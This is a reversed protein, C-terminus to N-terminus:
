DLFHALYEQDFEEETLLERGKTLLSKNIVDTAFLVRNYIFGNNLNILKALTDTEENFEASKRIKGPTSVFHVNKKVIEEVVEPTLWDSFEFEDFYYKDAKLNRFDALGSIHSVSSRDSEQLRSKGFFMEFQRKSPISIGAKFDPNQALNFSIDQIIGHTKGSCRHSLELHFNPFAGPIIM